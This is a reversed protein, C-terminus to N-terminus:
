DQLGISRVVYSNRRVFLMRMCSIDIIKHINFKVYFHILDSICSRHTLLLPTLFSVSIKTDLSLQIRISLLVISVFSWIVYRILLGTASQQFYMYFPDPLLFSERVAHLARTNVRGLGQLPESNRSQGKTYASAELVHLVDKGNISRQSM